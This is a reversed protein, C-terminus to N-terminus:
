KEQAQSALEFTSAVERKVHESEMVPRWWYSSVLDQQYDVVAGRVPTTIAVGNKAAAKVVREMPEYWAHFALNFTALHIPHYIKGRLDISAQISQEPLMHVDAWMEDYAGCEMFTVDFPGYKDGITKFGSFYGGDGSFFVSHDKTKIVWSAWLRKNRDTLGRGSFHQAPTALIQLGPLATFDEWWNLETVKHEGIGWKTLLEGVGRPVVFHRAKNKLQKVSYKNLHDYHDHSIIVVDVVPLEKIDAPYSKNFRKPGVATVKKEFVPDTLILRGDVSILLSSHGLWASKIGGNETNLARYDVPQEPLDQKPVRNAKEFLFRWLMEVNEKMSLKAPLEKTNMEDTSSTKTENMNLQLRTDQESAGAELSAVLLLMILLCSRFMLEVM